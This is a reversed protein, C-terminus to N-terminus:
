EKSYVKDELISFDNKITVKQLKFLEIVFEEGENDILQIYNDTVTAENLGNETITVCFDHGVDNSWTFHIVENDENGDLESFAGNVYELEKVAYVKSAGLIQWYLNKVKTKNM